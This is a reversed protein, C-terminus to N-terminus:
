SASGRGRFPLFVSLIVGVLMSGLAVLTLPSPAAVNTIAPGPCVGALGWGVGFLSAGVFLRADLRHLGKTPIESGWPTARGRRWMWAALTIGVAPGMVFLLAPDWRGAIDLFGIVKSPQLMGSVGLGIAFLIGCGLSIVLKM